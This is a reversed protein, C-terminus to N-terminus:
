MFRNIAIRPRHRATASLMPAALTSASWPSSPWVFEDLWHVFPSALWSPPPEPLSRRSTADLCSEPVLPLSSRWPEFPLSSSFPPEPLSTIEPLPPLSSSFPSL